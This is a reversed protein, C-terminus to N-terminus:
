VLGVLGFETALSKGGAGELEAEYAKDMQSTLGHKALEQAFQKRTEPNEDRYDIQDGGAPKSIRAQTLGQANRSPAGQHKFALYRAPAPGTNFHQHLWMNPPVIMTGVEWKYYRPEDGEPWM